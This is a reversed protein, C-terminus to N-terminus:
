QKEKMKGTSSRRGTFWRVMVGGGEEERNATPIWWRDAEQNLVTLVSQPRGFVPSGRKKRQRKRDVRSRRLDRRQQMGRFDCGNRQKKVVQTAESADGRFCVERGGECMEM